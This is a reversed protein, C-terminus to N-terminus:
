MREGEEECETEERRSTRTTVTQTIKNKGREGAAREM